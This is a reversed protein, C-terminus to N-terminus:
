ALVYITSFHNVGRCAFREESTEAESPEASVLLGGVLCNSKRLWKHAQRYM